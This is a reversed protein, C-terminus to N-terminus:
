RFGTFIYENWSCFYGQSSDLERLNNAWAEADEQPFGQSVVYGVIFEILLASASSPDYHTELQVIADPEIRKFGALALKAGMTRPLYPDALHGDWMEMIRKSATSEKTNWIATGWDTDHILVRGGPKLVRHVEDLAAPVDDLYEFVQSSMVADFVADDFPLSTAEGIRFSVNELESCRRRAIELASDAPDIGEVSGNSGVANSLEVAQHGPGSGIDLVHDGPNLRLSELIWRRRRTAAASSNFQEVARSWEDDFDLKEM